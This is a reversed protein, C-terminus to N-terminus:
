ASRVEATVVTSSGDAGLEDLALLRVHNHIREYKQVTGHGDWQAQPDTVDVVTVHRFLDADRPHIHWSMQWGGAVLYLLQWGDEDVDPSQTIVSTAPHLATIWALLQAREGYAGDRERTREALAEVAREREQDYSDAHQKWQAVESLAATLDQTLRLVREGEVTHPTTVPTPRRFLRALWPRVPEPEQNRHPRNATTSM